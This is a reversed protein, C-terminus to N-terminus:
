IINLTNTEWISPVLVALLAAKKMLLGHMEWKTQANYRWCKSLIILQLEQVWFLLFLLLIFYIFCSLFLAVVLSSATGSLMNKQAPLSIWWLVLGRGCQNAQSHVFMGLVNKFHPTAAITNGFKSSLFIWVNLKGIDWISFQICNVQIQVGFRITQWLSNNLPWLKTNGVESLGMCSINFKSVNGEPLSVYSNFMAM